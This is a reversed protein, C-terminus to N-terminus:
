AKGLAKSWTLPGVVGDDILGHSAQWRRTSSRTSPGFVGDITAGIVNQWVKVDQGSMGFQLTSYSVGQPLSLSGSALPPSAKLETEQSIPIFPNSERTSAVIDNISQILRKAHANINAKIGQETTMGALRESKTPHVGFYYKNARMAASVNRLSGSSVAQRVNPKLMVSALDQFGSGPSPYKKFATVYHIQGDPPITGGDQPTWPRSDKHLFQNANPPTPNLPDSGPRYSGDTISGMNNSGAGLLPDNGWSGYNGELVSVGRLALSEAPSLSPLASDVIAKAQLHNM